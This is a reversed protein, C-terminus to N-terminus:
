AHLHRGSALVVGHMLVAAVIPVVPVLVAGLVLLQASGVTTTVSGAVAIVGVVPVMPLFGLLHKGPHSNAIEGVEAWDLHPWRLSGLLDLVPGSVAVTAGALVCLALAGTTLGLLWGAAPVAVFSTLLAILAGQAARTAAVRRVGGPVLRWLTLAHRDADMALLGASAVVAGYAVVAVSAAGIQHRPADPPLTIGGGLLAWVGSGAAVVAALAAVNVLPRLRMRASRLLRRADVATVAAWPSLPLAPAAVRTVQGAAAMETVDAWSVRALARGSRYLLLCAGAVAAVGIAPALVGQGAVRVAATSSDLAGAPLAEVRALTTGLWGAAGLLLLASTLRRVLSWTRHPGMRRVVRRLLWVYRALLTVAVALVALVAWTGRGEGTGVARVFLATFALHATSVLVSKYAEVLTYRGHVFAATSVGAQSLLSWSRPSELAVRLTRAPSSAAVQLGLAVLVSWSVVDAPSM